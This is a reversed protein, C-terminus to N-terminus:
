EIVIKSNGIAKNLQEKSSIVHEVGDDDLEFLEVSASDWLLEAIDSVDIFTHGDNCKIIRKSMDNPQDDDTDDEELKLTASVDSPNCIDSIVGGEYLNSYAINEAEEFTEAEVELITSNRIEAIFTYTKM